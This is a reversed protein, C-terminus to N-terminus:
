RPCRIAKFRSPVASYSACDSIPIPSRLAPPFPAPRQRLQQFGLVAFTLSERSLDVVAKALVREHNPVLREQHRPTRPLAPDKSAIAPVAACASSVTRVKDAASCGVVSSRSPSTGRARQLSERAKATSRRISRPEVQDRRLPSRPSLLMRSRASPMAASRDIFLAVPRPM